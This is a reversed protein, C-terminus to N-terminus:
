AGGRLAPDENEPLADGGGAKPSSPDRIQISHFHFSPLTYIHHNHLVYTRSDLLYLTLRTNNHTM